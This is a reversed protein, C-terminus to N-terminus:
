KKRNNKSVLNGKLKNQKGKKSKGKRELNKGKGNSSNAKRNMNGSFNNKDNSSNGKNKRNSDNKYKAMQRPKILCEKGFGILDERGAKHLAEKVLEYNAPNRFQILARQM